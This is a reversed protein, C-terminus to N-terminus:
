FFSLLGEEGFFLSKVRKIKVKVSEEREPGFCVGEVDNRTQYVVEGKV